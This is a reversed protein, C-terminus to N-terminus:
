AYGSIDYDIETSKKVCEEGHVVFEEVQRKIAASERLFSPDGEIAARHPRACLTRIGARAADIHTHASAPGPQVVSSMLHLTRAKPCFTDIYKYSRGLQYLLEDVEAPM